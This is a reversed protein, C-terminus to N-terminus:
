IPKLLAQNPNYTGALCKALHANTIRAEICTTQRTYPQYTGALCETQSSQASTPVFHDREANICESADSSGVNPNYTGAVCATQDVSWFMIVLIQM